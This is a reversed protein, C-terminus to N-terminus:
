NKAGPYLPSDQVPGYDKGYKNKHPLPLFGSESISIPPVPVAGEGVVVRRELSSLTRETAREHLVRLLYEGPPVNSIEFRGDKRSITFYPTTLVAILANMTPHINCFVRVIGPRDFRVGRTTGPAYLGIDFVQGDFNSFANHFIPDYNPFDVTTGPTVALIHPSFKKNKQVIQARGGPRPWAPTSGVPELSLIVGSFDRGKRVSAERSDVLVVTGSVSASFGPEALTSILFGASFSILWRWTM